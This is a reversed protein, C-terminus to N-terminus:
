RKGEKTVAVVFLDGGRKDVTFEVLDGASLGPLLRAPEARFGMTMAGMLGPIPEHTIVVLNQDPVTGRIIGKVTWSVRDGQGAIPSATAGRQSRSVERTSWQYGILVGTALALNVLIVVKYLRM